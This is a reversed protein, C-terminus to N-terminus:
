SGHNAIVFTVAPFNFVLVIVRGSSVELNVAVVPLPFAVLIAPAIWSCSGAVPILAYPDAELREIRVPRESRRADKKIVLSLNLFGNAAM